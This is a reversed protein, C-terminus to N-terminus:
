PQALDERASNTNKETTASYYRLVLAAAAVMLLILIAMAIVIIYFMMRQMRDSNISMMEKLQAIENNDSDADLLNRQGRSDPWFVSFTATNNLAYIKDADNYSIDGDVVGYQFVQSNSNPIECTAVIQLEVDVYKNCLPGPTVTIPIEILLNYPIRQLDQQSFSVVLGSRQFPTGCKGAGSNEYSNRHFIDFRQSLGLTYYVEDDSLLLIDIM